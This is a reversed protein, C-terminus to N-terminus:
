REGRVDEGSVGLMASLRAAGVTCMIRVGAKIVADWRQHFITANLGALWSILYASLAGELTTGSGENGDADRVFWWRGGGSRAATLGELDSADGEKVATLISMLERRRM